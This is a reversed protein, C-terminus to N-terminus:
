LQHIGCIGSRCFTELSYRGAIRECGALHLPVPINTTPRKIRSNTRRLQSLEPVAYCPCTHQLFNYSNMEIRPHWQIGAPRNQKWKCYAQMCSWSEIKIQGPPM